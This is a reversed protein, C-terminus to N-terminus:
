VEQPIQRPHQRPYTYRQELVVLDRENDPNLLFGTWITDSHIFLLRRTGAPTIGTHPAQYRVWGTGETWVSVDGQSIVFPSEMRHTCSVAASGAPMFIERIYLGDTFKHTIPMLDIDAGLARHEGGVELLRLEAQDLLEDGTFQATLADLDLPAPLTPHTSM